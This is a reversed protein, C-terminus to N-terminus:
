YSKNKMLFKFRGKLDEGFINTDHDSVIQFFFETHFLANNQETFKRYRFFM